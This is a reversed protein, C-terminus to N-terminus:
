HKIHRSMAPSLDQDEARVMCWRIGICRRGYHAARCEPARAGASSTACMAFAAPDAGSGVFCQFLLQEKSTVYYYV